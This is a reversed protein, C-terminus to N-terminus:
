TFYTGQSGYFTTFCQEPICYRNEILSLQVFEVATTQWFTVWFPPMLEFHCVEREIESMSGQFRKTHTHTRDYYVHGSLKLNTPSVAAQPSNSANMLKLLCSTIQFVRARM